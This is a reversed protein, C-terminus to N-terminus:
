NEWAPCIIKFPCWDCHKGKNPILPSTEMNVLMEIIQAKIKDLNRDSAKISYKKQEEVFYYTLIIQEPKLNLYGRDMVALAYISLQLSKKLETETPMKGTKYDIIEFQNAKRDIRDIKGSIVFSKDNNMVKLFFMKELDVIEGHLSHFIKYYDALVRKGKEFDAERRTKNLYGGMIFNDQYIKLLDSLLYSEGNKMGKYFLELTKHISSGFSLAPAEREPLKLIFKYKYQLACKNFTELQTYSFREIGYNKIIDQAIGDKNVEERFDFITLQSSSNNISNLSKKLVEQDISEVVFPSVKKKIKGTGYFEASSLYLCDRARTMGVYFLRREEELHFNGEPLEERILEDPIPLTETRNRTPFHDATLSILFIIPFELGKSSHVTLINVADELSIDSEEAMPVDGLELALDIASVVEDVTPEGFEGEIKKLKNFFRTINNLRQEDKENKIESLIKLYGSKDFFNFLLQLASKNRVEELSNTLIKFLAEIKEKSDTKLIPLYRKTQLIEPSITGATLQLYFDIAEYLSRSIRKAFNNLLVLDKINIGFLNMTLIRYLSVSDDIANLFRFYAILDRIENKYYLLSPGLFQFPITARELAQIVPKAHDNARVLIAIDQYRYKEKKILSKIESVIKEAENEANKGFIFRTIQKGAGRTAQLKKSIGLKAELTDPDNNKILKYSDDLINQFSRYNENLVFMQTEPYDKQFSLINSVSAGRFKYISQNDDGIVTIQPNKKSPFLLKIIDYQVINTDQFEDVLCYQFQKQFLTLINQRKKLLECVFFLLDSFDLLNNKLKLREFTTYMKALELTKKIDKKEDEEISKIDKKQAYRLYESTTINEDRLRSFHSLAASIFGTPNGTSYFYDLEFENLHKRFFLTSEVQSLIKFNPSIGIHMGYQRLVRDAFSHFTMIWTDFYGYPLAIDVREVMENAAKETFTLALVSEPPIKKEVIIKKIKETIVYTKGTGAGAIILSPGNFFNIAANQEKNSIFKTM